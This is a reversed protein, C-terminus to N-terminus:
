AAWGQDDRASSLEIWTCRWRTRLRHCLLPRLPPTAGLSSLAGSATSAASANRLAPTEDRALRMAEVTPLSARGVAASLAKITHASPPVLSPLFSLAPVGAASTASVPPLLPSPGQQARSGGSGAHHPHPSCRATLALTFRNVTAQHPPLGQSWRPACMRGHM